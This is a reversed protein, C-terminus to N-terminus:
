TDCSGARARHLIVLFYLYSGVMFFLNFFEQMCNKRENKLGFEIRFEIIPELKRWCTFAGGGSFRPSAITPFSWGKSRM